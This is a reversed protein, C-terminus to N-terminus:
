AGNDTNEDGGSFGFSPLDPLDLIIIVIKFLLNLANSLQSHCRLVNKDGAEM